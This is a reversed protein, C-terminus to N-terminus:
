SNATVPTSPLLCGLTELQTVVFHFDDASAAQSGYWVREFKSTVAVLASHRADDPAPEALLSLYERHTRTRDVQWFGLEALRYVGAWYALRIADRYDGRASAELAERAWDRSGHGTSVPGKLDLSSGVPRRLFARLLGAMLLAALSIALTWMLTQSARRSSGIGGFLSHLLEGLWMILRDRAADLRSPGRMGRFEYRNLIADLKQRAVQPRTARAADPSTTTRNPLTVGSAPALLAAALALLVVARAVFRPFRRPSSLPHRSLM